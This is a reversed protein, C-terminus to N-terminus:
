PTGSTTRVNRRASPSPSAIVARPSSSQAAPRVSPVCMTTAFIVTVQASASVDGGRLGSHTNQQVAAVTRGIGLM